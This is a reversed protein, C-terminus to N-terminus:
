DDFTSQAETSKKAPAKKATAAKKKPKEPEPAREPALEVRGQSYAAHYAPRTMTVIDGKRFTRAPEKYACSLKCGSKVVAEVTDPTKKTKAMTTKTTNRAPLAM